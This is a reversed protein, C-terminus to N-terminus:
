GTNTRVGFAHVVVGQLQRGLVPQSLETARVYANGPTVVATSSGNWVPGAAAVHSAEVPTAFTAGSDDSRVVVARSTGVDRAAIYIQDDAAEDSRRDVVLEPDAYNPGASGAVGALVVSAPAFTAGGDTSTSLLVSYGDTGSQPSAWAVYVRSGSGFTVAQQGLSQGGHDIAPCASEPFGAPPRLENRAWSGGGDTSVSHECEQAAVDHHVEVVRSANTPDVALNPATQGRGPAVNALGQMPYDPTIVRVQGVVGEVPTAATTVLVASLVSLATVAWTGTRRSSDTRGSM